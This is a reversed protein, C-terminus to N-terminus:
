FTSDLLARVSLTFHPQAGDQQFYFNDGQYQKCVRPMITDQLMNLHVTQDITTHQIIFGVLDKCSLRITDILVVSLKFNAKDIQM